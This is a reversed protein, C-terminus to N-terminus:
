TPIGSAHPTACVTILDTANNRHHAIQPLIDREGNAGGHASRRGGDRDHDREGESERHVGDHEVHHIMEQQARWNSYPIGSLHISHTEGRTVVARHEPGHVRVVLRQAIVDFCELGDAREPADVQRDATPLARPLGVRHHRRRTEERRKLHPRHDAPEEELGLIPQRLPFADRHDAIEDPLTLVGALRRYQASRDLYATLWERDDAHSRAPERPHIDRAHVDPDGEARARREVTARFPVLVAAVPALDDCPASGPSGDLQGLRFRRDRERLHRM